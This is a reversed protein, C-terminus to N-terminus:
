INERNKKKSGGSFDRTDTSPPTHTSEFKLMAITKGTYFFFVFM